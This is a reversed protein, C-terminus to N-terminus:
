TATIRDLDNHTFLELRKAVVADRAAELTAFCGLHYRQRDHNVTAKWKKIQPLWVVGLVGSKSNRMAGALNERQQKHTALRLHNPNVCRPTHCIHDIQMGAPIVGQSMQYSIRHAMHDRGDYYFVGYDRWNRGAIWVWCSGSKDVKSWFRQQVTPSSLGTDNPM